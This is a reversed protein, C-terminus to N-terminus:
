FEYEAQMRLTNRPSSQGMGLLWAANYKIAHREATRIRGFIAPGADHSQGSSPSWNDWPGFSGFGQM